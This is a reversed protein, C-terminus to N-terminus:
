RFRYRLEPQFTLTAGRIVISSNLTLPRVDRDERANNLHRQYDGHSNAAEDWARQNTNKVAFIGQSEVNMSSMYAAMEDLFQSANDGLRMCRESELAIDATAHESTACITKFNDVTAQLTDLISADERSLRTQGHELRLLAQVVQELSAYSLRATDSVLKESLETVAQLSKYSSDHQSVLEETRAKLIAFVRQYQGLHHESISLRPYNSISLLPLLMGVRGFPDNNWNITRESKIEKLAREAMQMQDM